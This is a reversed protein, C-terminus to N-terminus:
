YNINIIIIHIIIKFMLLRLDLLAFIVNKKTSELSASREALTTANHDM